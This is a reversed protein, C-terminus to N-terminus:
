KTQTFSTFTKVKEFKFKFQNPDISEEDEILSEISVKKFSIGKEKLSEENKENFYNYSLDGEGKALISKEVSYVNMYGDSTIETYPIITLYTGITKTYGYWDKKRWGSKHIKNIPTFHKNLYDTYRKM